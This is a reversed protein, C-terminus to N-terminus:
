TLLTNLEDETYSKKLHPEVDYENLLMKDIDNNIDKIIITLEVKKGYKKMVEKVNRQAGFFARIFTEKTVRRKELEERKKTLEWAQLPDQYVFIIETTRGKSLSRDINQVAEAYAFTGDIVANMGNALIFDYLINVGKSAARQFLHANSGLYGPCFVRIEDADIRVAGGLEEILRTSVETKGAGPSGAMFVTTPLTDAPPQISKVFKEILDKKHSKIYELAKASLEEEPNM